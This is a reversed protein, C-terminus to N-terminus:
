RIEIGSFSANYYVTITYASEKFSSYKNEIGCFSSNDKFILEYGKPLRMEIGGFKCDVYIKLDKSLTINDINVDAGGFLVDVYLVDNNNDDVKIDRKSFFVSNKRVKKGKIGKINSGRDSLLIIIGVFIILVPFFYERLNLNIGIVPLLFYIGLVSLFVGTQFRKNFIDKLGFYILILPWFKFLNRLDFDWGYYNAGVYFLGVIILLVGFIKKSM